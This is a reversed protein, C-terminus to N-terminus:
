SIAVSVATVNAAGMVFTATYTGATSPTIAPFDTISVSGTATLNATTDTKTGDSVLTVTVVEGELATTKNCTLTYGTGAPTPTAITYVNTDVGGATGATGFMKNNEDVFIARVVNIGNVNETVIVANNFDASYVKTYPIPSAVSSGKKNASDVGIVKTETTVVYSTDKIAAVTGDNRIKDTTTILIGNTTNLEKIKVDTFTLGGGAEVLLDASAVVAGEAANPYKVFDGVAATTTDVLLKVEEAGNWITIEKVTDTGNIISAVGTVYGYGSTTTAGTPYNAAHAAFAVVKGDNDLIYQIKTADAADFSNIESAKFAKWASLSTNYVFVVADSAVIHTTPTTANYTILTLNQKVFKHDTTGTTSTVATAITGLTVKTNESSLGFPYLEAASASGVTPITTGTAATVVYEKNEGTLLKGTKVGMVDGGFTVLGFANTGAIVKYAGYVPGSLVLSVTKGIDGANLSASTYESVTFVDENNYTYWVGDIGITDIGSVTKYGTVKGEITTAKGFFQTVQTNTPYVNGFRVIDGVAIGEYGVCNELKIGAKGELQIATTTIASVKAYETDMAYFKAIKGNDDCIFKVTDVSSKALTGTIYLAFEFASLDGDSTAGPLSMATAYVAATADATTVNVDTEGYNFVGVIDTATDNAAVSYYKDGFKIKGNALEAGPNQMQAQLVTYTTTKGTNIIGYITDTDDVSNATGTASDKFLVAVQEGIWNNADAFSYTFTADAAAATGVAGHVRVQNKKVLGLANSDGEMTGVFKKLGFKAAMISAGDLSYTETIKGTTADQSWTRKMNPAEIGNYILQAANDRSLAASADVKIDDYLGAKNAAVNVNIEWNAGEFGFVKPEYNMAVLMMKAAQSGTVAADPAFTGDGMGAVIGLNSCYEIYGVAWHGAIDSYTPNATTGLVPEKGGNLAVCIMKSMEARTVTGTPDFVNGNKGNIINLATMINVAEVNEIEAKDKFDAASAVGFLGLVMVLVLVLSLTKNLTKM